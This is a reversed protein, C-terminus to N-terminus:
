TACASHGSGAPSVHLALFTIFCAHRVCFGNCQHQCATSAIVVGDAIVLESRYTPGPLCPRYQTPSTIHKSLTVAATDDSAWHMTTAKRRQSIDLPQWMAMHETNFTAPMVAHGVYLIHQPTLKIGLYLMPLEGCMCALDVHACATVDVARFGFTASNSTCLMHVKVDSQQSYQSACMSKPTCTHAQEGCSGEDVVGAHGVGHLAETLLADGERRQLGDLGACLNGDAVNLQSGCSSLPAELQQVLVEKVNVM